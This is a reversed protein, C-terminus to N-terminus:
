SLPARATWSSDLLDGNTARAVGRRRRRRADTNNVVSLLERRRYVPM